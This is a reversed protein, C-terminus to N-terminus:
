HHLSNCIFWSPSDWDQYLRQEDQKDFRFPDVLAESLLTKYFWRILGVKDSPIVDQWNM